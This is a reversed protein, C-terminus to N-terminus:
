RERIMKELEALTKEKDLKLMCEWVILVKWGLDKLKEYNLSDRKENCKIKNKWFEANNEPWKFYRCDHHHWFCGNIFIVTKYKPLVVDPKGPFRADNKRYRLGRAFLYKRVLEEPKTDKARIRSM